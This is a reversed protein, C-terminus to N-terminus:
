RAPVTQRRRIAAAYGALLSRGAATRSAPSLRSRRLAHWAGVALRDAGVGAVWAAGQLPPQALTHDALLAGWATLKACEREAITPWEGGAPDLGHANRHAVLAGDALVGDACALAVAIPGFEAHAAARRLQPLTSSRLVLYDPPGALPAYPLRGRELEHLTLPEVPRTPAMGQGLAMDVRPADFAPEVQELWTPSPTWGPLPIAILDTKAVAVADLIREWHRDPEGDLLEVRAGADILEQVRRDDGPLRGPGLLVTVPTRLHPPAASGSEDGVVRLVPTGPASSAPPAVAAGSPPQRLERPHWGATRLGQLYAARQVRNFIRAWAGRLNAWELADLMAVSVVDARPHGFATNVVRRLPHRWRTPPHLALPLFAAAHPHRRALRADGGAELRCARIRRAASLEFEHAAVASPEYRLDIGDALLRAGWEWDERRLRAYGADFGRGDLFTARGISANGSLTEMFTLVPSRELLRFHDEWWLSASLTALNARPPRPPSYGIVVAASEREAHSAVHRELLDPAAVLDDDLFLLLEGRALEAGQNRAVAAGRGGARHVRLALRGDPATVDLPDAVEAPTDDVVIVEFASAPLTQAALAALCPGLTGARGVTPVVVSVQPADSSGGSVTARPPEEVATATEPSPAQALAASAPSPRATPPPFPSTPRLGPDIRRQTRLARRWARPGALAGRLYRWAIRTEVADARGLMRQRQTLLYQSLSWWAARPTELERDQVLLKWFAAGAGVGYGVIARDLAPWDARHQHFVFTGPDYVVRHGAALLRALVYTDGGSLTETGADLEPPFPERVARLLSGRIAVNAGVGLQGAHVPSFLTWDIIRRRLGRTLSAQREMRVRAPTDLAYPFAPGTVAGVMPDEFAEALRSLWGAPHVCDDDTFALVEGRAVRVGANRANDLGKRDERLYRFGRGLVQQECDHEGPANDVVIVELPAPDLAALADLATTLHQPRGHTCLIVSCSPPPPPLRGAAPPPPVTAEPGERLMEAHPWILARALEASDVAGPSPLDLRAVPRGGDLVLVDWRDATSFDFSDLPVAVDVVGIGIATASNTQYSRPRM